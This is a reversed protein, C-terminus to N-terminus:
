HPETRAALRALGGFLDLMRELWAALADNEDLLALRSVARAWQFPGFLVYDAFGPSRGCLFAQDRLCARAPALSRALEARAREPPLGVQELPKGFRQERTRRFYDKDREDLAAFLDPMIAALIVPHVAGQTWDRVFGTLARAQAGEMLAPRDAYAEDLYLAIDWSDHVVRDGDVLVPVFGQSSFAIKEKEVFRWPITATELGKHALAMRIRWCYPSFRVREDAAALDYMEIPM